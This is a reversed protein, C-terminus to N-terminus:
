KSPRSFPDEIYYARYSNIDAKVQWLITGNLDVITLLLPKRSTCVLFRDPSVRYASGMRFSSLQKPLVIKSVVEAKQRREDVKLVLIKSYPRLKPHGNDFVILEDSDVHISHQGIFYDASDLAMTGEKGLKWTVTGTMPDIKWIQGYDRFSVLYGGDTDITLSNGHSIRGRQSTMKKIAEGVDIHDRVDWKWGITGQRLIRVIGDSSAIRDGTLSMADATLAVLTGDELEEIEHHLFVTDPRRSLDLDLLVKGDMGIEVIRSTDIASLITNRRTWKFQRRISQNYKHYWVPDGNNNLIVDAGNDGFKRLLIYGQFVTTDIRIKEVKILDAPLEGSKFSYEDSSSGTAVDVIRYKYETNPTINTLLATHHIARPTAIERRTTNGKRWYQLITEASDPTTWSISPRLLNGSPYAVEPRENIISGCSSILTLLLFISIRAM